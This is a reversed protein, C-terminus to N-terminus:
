IRNGGKKARRDLWLSLSLIGGAGLIVGIILASGTYYILEPFM